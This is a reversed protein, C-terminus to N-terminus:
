VLRSCIGDICILRALRYAALSLRLTVLCYKWKIAFEILVTHPIREFAKVLDTLTQAYEQKSLHASEAALSLM